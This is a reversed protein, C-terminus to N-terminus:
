TYQNPRHMTHGAEAFIIIGYEVAMELAGINKTHSLSSHLLVPRKTPRGRVIFYM